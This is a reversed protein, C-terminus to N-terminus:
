IRQQKARLTEIDKEVRKEDGPAYGEFVRRVIGARDILLSSPMRPLDYLGAVDAQPDYLVRLATIRASRLFRDANERKSDINIALLEVDGRQSALRRAVEDLRPLEHRCPACWSAWFNIFV